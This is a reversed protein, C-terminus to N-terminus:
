SCIVLAEVSAKWAKVLTVGFFYTIPAIRCYGAAGEPATQKKYALM